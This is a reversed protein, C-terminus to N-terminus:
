TESVINEFHEIKPLESALSVAVIDIQYPTNEPIKNQLLWLETLKKYKQQKKYDVRDEPNFEGTNSLTKVEVFCIPHKVFFGRKKAIIDIEGFNTSYNRGLINFGKKVLYECALDEGKQGVEKTQLM